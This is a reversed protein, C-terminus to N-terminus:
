VENQKRIIPQIDHLTEVCESIYAQLEETPPMMDPVMVTYMGAISAAKVGNHSDEIALCESPPIGILEAAKLFIDPAPKGNAVEDGFISADLYNAIGSLELKKMASSRYTSSAVAMPLGLSKAYDMLEFVGPKLPVGFEAIYAHVGKRVLVFLEEMDLGSGYHEALTECVKDHPLGMSRMVVEENYEYGMQPLALKLNDDYLKESDILTGDMDFVIGKIM